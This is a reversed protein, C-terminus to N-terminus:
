PSGVRYFRQLYNTAQPDHFHLQGSGPPVEVAAGIDTWADLPLAVNTSAFVTFSGDILSTFGFHFAAGGSSVGSLAANELVPRRFQGRAHLPQPPWHFVFIKGLRCV